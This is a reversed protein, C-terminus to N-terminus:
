RLRFAWFLMRFIYAVSKLLKFHCVFLFVGSMPKCVGMDLMVGISTVGNVVHVLLGLMLVAHRLVYTLMIHFACCAVVIAHDIM